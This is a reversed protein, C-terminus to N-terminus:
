KSLSYQLYLSIVKRKAKSVSKEKPKKIRFHTKM